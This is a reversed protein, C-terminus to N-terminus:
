ISYANEIYEELKKRKILRKHGNWLVFPCNNADAMQRLKHIGIGSYVAAEELSLTAKEWVPIDPRRDKRVAQNEKNSTICLSQRFYLITKTKKQAEMSFEYNRVDIAPLEIAKKAFYNM